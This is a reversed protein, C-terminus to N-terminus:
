KSERIKALLFSLQADAVEQDLKKPKRGDKSRQEGEINGDNTVSFVMSSGDGGPLTVIFVGKGPIKQVSGVGFGTDINRTTWEGMWNDLYDFVSEDDSTELGM